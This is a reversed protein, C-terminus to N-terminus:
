SSETINLAYRLHKPLLFEAPYGVEILYLGDPPAAAGATGRDRGELLEALWAEGQEGRGIALLSGIINRVMHMLFANARIDFVLLEGQQKLSVAQVERVAHKAQCGAARFASFDQEGLLTRAAKAMAEVDLSEHVWAARGQWLPSRTPAQFILYQYRRWTASFRAHFDDAVPQVWQVAVSEPLLANAGLLWNHPQRQAESDFHVIQGTGHVGTDTRGACTVVIPADAVASLARELETQVASAHPQRQWGSFGRGDYEIGLAYRMLCGIEDVCFPNSGISGALAM